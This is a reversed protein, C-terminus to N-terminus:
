YMKDVRYKLTNVFFIMYINGRFIQDVISHIIDDNISTIILENNSNFTVRM